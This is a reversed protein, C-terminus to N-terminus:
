GAVENYAFVDLKCKFAAHFPRATTARHRASFLFTTQELGAPLRTPPFRRRGYTAPIPELVRGIVRFTVFFFSFFFLLMFLVQLSLNFNWLASVKDM